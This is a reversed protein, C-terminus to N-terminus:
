MKENAAWIFSRVTNPAAEPYLEVTIIGGSTHIKAVPNMIEEKVKKKNYLLLINKYIGLPCIFEGRCYLISYIDVRM